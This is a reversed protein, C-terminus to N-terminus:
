TAARGSGTDAGINPDADATSVLDLDGRGGTLQFLEDYITTIAAVDTDDVFRDLSLFGDRDYATIQEPTLTLTPPHPNTAQFVPRLQWDELLGTALDDSGVRENM